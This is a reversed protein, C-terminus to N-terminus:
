TCKSAVQRWTRLVVLDSGLRNDDGGPHRGDPVSLDQTDVDPSESFSTKQRSNRRRMFARPRSPTRSTMESWCAPNTDAMLPQKWPAAWWRQRTRKARLRLAHDGFPCCDMSDAAKLVMKAWTDGGLDVGL